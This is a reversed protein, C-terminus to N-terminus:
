DEHTSQVQRVLGVTSRPDAALEVVRQYEKEALEPTFQGSYDIKKSSLPKGFALDELIAQLTERTTFLSPYPTFFMRFSAGGLLAIPLFARLKLDGNRNTGLYFQPMPLNTGYVAQAYYRYLLDHLTQLDTEASLGEQLQAQAAEGMVQHAKWISYLPISVVEWVLKRRGEQYHWNQQFEALQKGLEHEFRGEPLQLLTDIGAFYPDVENSKYFEIQTPEILQLCMRVAQQSYETGREYFGQHSYLPVIVNQGGFEFFTGVLKFFRDFVHDLYATLDEMHGPNDKHRSREMIYTTRTGGLAFVGTLGEPYRQRIREAFASDM